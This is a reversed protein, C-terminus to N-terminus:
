KEISRKEVVIANPVEDWSDTGLRKEGARLMLGTSTGGDLNLAVDLELDSAALWQGLETLTFAAAPSAILVIRGARDQAVVTRPAVRQNDDIELNPAGGPLVLMPFNQLAYALPEGAYPEKVNWRVRAEDGQVAFMGGFGRYPAGGVVRGAQVVLGLAHNQPDFFNGNVAALANFDTLWEGVRRPHDPEYIVRFRVRAPDFRAFRLRDSRDDQKISLERYEVGPTIPQWGTDIPRLTATPRSTAAPAILTPAADIFACGCLMIIAAALLLRRALAM